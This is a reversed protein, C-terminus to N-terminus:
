KKLYDILNMGVIHEFVGIGLVVLGLIFTYIAFIKFKDSKVLWNVMKIACVGVVAAIVFGVIFNLPEVTLANADAADKIELLCGALITPIGLIFSYQVATEREFGRFLGSAITSGSRSVGPLLAIGQFIGVIVGDKVTINEFKQKGQRM